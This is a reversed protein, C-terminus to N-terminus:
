QVQGPPQGIESVRDLVGTFSNGTLHNYSLVKFNLRGDDGGILSLPFTVDMGVLVESADYM